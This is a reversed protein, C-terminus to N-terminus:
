IAKVKESQEYNLENQLRRSEEKAEKLQRQLAAIHRAESAKRAKENKRQRERSAETEAASPEIPV